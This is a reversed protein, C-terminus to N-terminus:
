TGYLATRGRFICYMTYHDNTRTFTLPPIRVVGSRSCLKPPATPPSGTLRATRERSSSLVTTVASLPSVAFIETYHKKQRRSPQETNHRQGRTKRTRSSETPVPHSYTPAPRCQRWFVDVPKGGAVGRIDLLIHKTGHASNQVTFTDRPEASAFSFYLSVDFIRSFLMRICSLFIPFLM